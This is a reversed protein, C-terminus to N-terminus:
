LSKIIRKVLGPGEYILGSYLQVLTAGMDLRRKADEPNMIGGSSIIPIKGDVYKVIQDLAAESKVRLKSGSMGGSETRHASKLGERALTTNTAIVGDMGTDLIVDLADRLEEDSLDPSFKVLLPLRKRLTKQEQKRQYDLEKLLSELNKKGQLDRLGATNPSSINITLYDACPAFLQLLSLYDYVAEENPTNKNKGINIGLIMKAQPEKPVPKPLFKHIEIVKKEKIHPNKCHGIAKLSKIVEASGASPFGMRNIVSEDEELRFVRPSPNGKQPMPTITGVEIHGFGLTSLGRVALADKDYGAALGVPNHFYLGFATVPKPPASFIKKLMWQAGLITPMRKLAYITQTHATEPDLKFLLPRIIKYM